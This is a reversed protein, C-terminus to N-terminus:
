GRGRRAFCLGSWTADVACVKYDVFGRALGFSRVEAEGLDGALGSAKKPWCIWLRGGPPLEGAAAPWGRALAAASRCFLLSVDPAGRGIERAGQPLPGLTAGFGEPAGRIRVAAGARIGLKRWLPTGSYGAMTAPVLPSRPPRALARRLAAGIGRWSAFSADPMAARARAVQHPEGGAFVIPLRRTAKQQRLWVAVARGQSPNRALDVVFGAPPDARVARLARGARPDTFATAEYGLAELRAVRGAAEAASWHVLLLRPRSGRRAPRPRRPPAAERGRRALERLLALGAPWGGLGSAGNLHGAAGAGVFRSGWSRAFLRARDLSVYPDDSSAVVTSPFPLPALPMPAFGTPGAPFSPAESDSPAVLLAGRIPRPRAAAWHAVLACAASHAALLAEPGAAAAAADLRSAWDALRPTVWDDQEVRRFGPRGALWLTQWHQPGSDHLGPLILVPSPDAPPM